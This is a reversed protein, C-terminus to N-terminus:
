GLFVMMQDLNLILPTQSHFKVEVLSLGISVLCLDCHEEYGLSM